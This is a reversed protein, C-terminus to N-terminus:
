NIPIIQKKPSEEPLLELKVFNDGSLYKIAMEKISAPTVQDLLAPYNKVQGPSEQNQLTESLYKLWFSNTKLETEMLTKEEARWKDVNTQTPGDTRLKKVEDLASVILKDANHPACGFQIYFGYRERPFKTVNEFVSPSYVGSEDERLRELLRIELVEKLADMQVKEEPSYSFKGSFVLLATSKPETGKYVNKELHGEPIHINLDRITEHKNISPISGLYKELLPKIASVDFNGAFTFTFDAPNGFRAKYIAYAKDLDVQQLKELTPGTRRSSHGGLVASVTDSFVSGPDSGRNVLSAASRKIIGKFIATDKRPETFYAYTMQLATELDAPTTSGTIGSYNEAIYIKIKLLKGELFKDLQGPTYNGAGSEPIIVAANAASQFDADSSLSTGGPAFASFLIENNKFSTPKLVVKLGNSLTLTITNLEKDVSEGTIKGPVPDTALLPKASVEDQYPELKEASVAKLWNNVTLEAPIAVKDKEPAMILVDRNTNTIWAKALNNVEILTIGPLDEKTLQYETSIGPAAISKLFYAQYEKVYDASNTKDQEKLAAEIRSLASQKARQLETATFGFCKVRETERWVAKLGKELEGPKAVVTAGYIDLGGMFGSIGAGGQIFPADAKRSLEAYRESLMQNFLDQIINKRYDGTTKLEQGPHKILVQAVTATMERDTVAVFSNKGDLAITYASRRREKEPNKLDAFQQNVAHELQDVNIDGVIVLAQLDPRYWEEYFRRITQPKFNNLVTDIGIPMRAAYRSNNLLVSWYQRRMREMAGKGLRKEELVVGREKDIEVPDLTANQAWDRMIRLGGALLEPKDSPIPLQYVTEDFSTYANLDAGFRVGSKQLYDVLENKPFHKTGNFSMHEMFHALGQQDDDELISGAKNVLYMVVRNKPEENHRIYYTFGNPLKGTRVAPDLPLIPNGPQAKVAFPALALLIIYKLKQNM